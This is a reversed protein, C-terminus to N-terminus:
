ATTRGARFRSGPLASLLVLADQRRATWEFAALVAAYALLGLAAEAIWPLPLVLVTAAMAASALLPGAFAGILDTRGVAGQALWLAIVALVLSTFAATVAAGDAGHAPILVANLGVNLLLLPAVMRSYIGPRDRAIMVTSSFANIGYTMVMAGLIRLPVIAGDFESGYLLHVIPEAFLVFALGIPALLANLAKLAITYGRSLEISGRALWPLMAGAFSSSLFQTAEVLRYAVAYVGVAATSALFSLMTVDLRLLLTLLLGVLGIPVGARVLPWWGSRDIRARRVGLRRVWWEAVLVAAVSGGAYCGAAAVVDGGLALVVVGVAATLGRQLILSAAILDLREHAQFIAFWSKSLVEIASGIGVVYVAARAQPGYDGVNVVAAAVLLALVGGSVKVGVADALMRGARSHDRAVERALLEDTGFGAIFCLASTLALAFMFEGFGTTGLQRAMTVYFALSGLKAVVEGVMRVVANRAIRRPAHDTM